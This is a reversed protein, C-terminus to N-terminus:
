HSPTDDRKNGSRPRTTIPKGNPTQPPPRKVPAKPHLDHALIQMDKPIERRPPSIPKKPKPPADKQVLPVEKVNSRLNDTVNKPIPPPPRNGITPKPNVTPLQEGVQQQPKPKSSAHPVPPPTRKGITPNPNTTPVQEGVQQQPPGSLPKSRTPPIPPPPRNGIIPKPNTTPVQEGVQQPPKSVTSLLPPKSLPPTFLPPPETVVQQEKVKVKPAEQQQEKPKVKDAEFVIRDFEKPNTKRHKALDKDSLGKFEKLSVPKEGINELFKNLKNLLATDTNSQSNIKSTNLKYQALSAEDSKALHGTEIKKAIAGLDKGSIAFDKRFRSAFTKNKDLSTSIQQVLEEQNAAVYESGMKSIAPMLEKTIKKVQERSVEFGKEKLKNISQQIVSIAELDNSVQGGFKTMNAPTLKKPDFTCAGFESLKGEVSFFEAMRKQIHPSITNTVFTTDKSIFPSVNDPFKVYPMLKGVLEAKEQPVFGGIEKTETITGDKEKVRGIREKLFPMGNILSQDKIFEGVLDKVGENTKLKATLENKITAFSAKAPEFLKPDAGRSVAADIDKNMEIETQSLSLVGIGRDKEDKTQVKSTLSAIGSIFIPNTVEINGENSTAFVMLQQAIFRRMTTASRELDSVATQIQQETLPPPVENKAM